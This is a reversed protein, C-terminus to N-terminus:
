SNIWLWCRWPRPNTLVHYLPGAILVYIRWNANARHCATSFCLKCLTHSVELGESGLLLTAPLRILCYELFTPYTYRSHVNARIPDGTQRAQLTPDTQRRHRHWHSTFTDAGVPVYYPFTVHHVWTLVGGPSRFDATLVQFVGEGSVICLGTHSVRVIHPSRGCSPLDSGM